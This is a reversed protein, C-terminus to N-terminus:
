AKDNNLSKLTTLSLKYENAISEYTDGKLVVRYKWFVSSEKRVNRFLHLTTLLIMIQKLRLQNEEIIKIPKQDCTQKNVEECVEETVDYNM